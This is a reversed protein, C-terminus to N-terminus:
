PAVKLQTFEHGGAGRATPVIEDSPRMCVATLNESSPFLHLCAAVREMPGDPGWVAPFRVTRYPVKHM